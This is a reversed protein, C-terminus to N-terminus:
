NDQLLGSGLKQAIALEEDPDVIETKFNLFDLGSLVKERIVSSGFGIRGSFAIVDVGGLAAAYAGIYKKIRYCYIDLALEAEEKTCNKELQDEGPIYSDDEIKEGALYLVSLMSGLTGTIGALGCHSELMEKTKKIGIKESLFIVISPDIDGSRTRMPVGEFPTFGMSTDIPKGCDIAALSCGAGLHLSIVKKNQSPDVVSSIYEHSIGHFGFRKIGFEAAINKDIPYFKTRDPLNVFYATDFVAFHQSFIFKEISSHIVDYAAPNHHPALDFYKQIIQMTPLTVPLPGSVEDGGHVIRYGVKLIEKQYKSIDSFMLDVAKAHTKIKKGIGSYNKSEVVNLEQDFLKYNLSSSGPNIVLIM